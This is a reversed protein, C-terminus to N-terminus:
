RSVVVSWMRKSFINKTKLEKIDNLWENGIISVLGLYNVTKSDKWANYIINIENKHLTGIKDNGQNIDIEKILIDAYKTNSAKKILKKIEDFTLTKM